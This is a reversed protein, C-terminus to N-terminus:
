PLRRPILGLDVISLGRHADCGMLECPAPEPSCRRRHLGGMCLSDLLVALLLVGGRAGMQWFSSVNLMNLGNTLMGLLLVSLLTGVLTGEGGAGSM